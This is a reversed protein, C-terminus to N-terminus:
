RSRRFGVAGAGLAARRVQEDEHATVFAIPIARSSAVLRQQLERCGMRAMRLNPVLCASPHPSYRILPDAFHLRHGSHRHSGTASLLPRQGLVPDLPDVPDGNRPPSGPPHSPRDSVHASAVGVPTLQRHHGAPHSAM